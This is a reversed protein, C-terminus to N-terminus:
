ILVIFILLFPISRRPEMARRLLEEDNGYDYDHIIIRNEEKEDKL